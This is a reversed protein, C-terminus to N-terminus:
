GIGLRKAERPNVARLAKAAQERVAPVDDQLLRVLAPTAENARTGLMSLAHVMAGRVAPTPNRLAGTLVLTIHFAKERDIRELLLAASLGLEPNTGNLETELMPVSLRAKEPRGLDLLGEVAKLRTVPPYPRQSLEVLVPVADVIRARDIRALSDIAALCVEPFPDHMAELLAPVAEIYKPDIRGIALTAAYRVENHPDMLCEMLPSRAGKASSGIHGLALASEKRVEHHYDFLNEILAPVADRADPGIEQLAHAIRRRVEPDADKLAPLLAPLATKVSSGFQCLLLGAFRRVEVNGDRLLGAIEPISASGIRVLLEGILSALNPTATRLRAVLAPIAEGAESGIQYLAAFVPEWLESEDLRESLALALPKAAAGLRGAAHIAKTQQKRDKTKIASLLVPMAKGAQAPDIKVLAAAVDARSDMDGLLAILDPVADRGPPGIWGLARAYVEAHTRDRQLAQRLASVAETPPPLIAGLAEAALVAVDGNGVKLADILRPVARPGIRALAHRAGERIAKDRHKLAAILAAVADQASPGLDALAEVTAKNDLSDALLPVADSRTPDIQALALAASLKLPLPKDHLNQALAPVATRAVPGMQGLVEAAAQKLTAEGKGLAAALDPVAIPGLLVLLARVRVTEKPPKSLLAILAPVVKKAAPDMQWLAQGAMDAPGDRGSQLVELLALPVGEGGLRGLSWCAMAAVKEKDDKLAALLAPTAARAPPGIWGLAQAAQQRVVANDDKLAAILAPVIDAAPEGIRGLAEAAEERVGPVAKRRQLVEILAPVAAVARPGMQILVHAAGRCVSDDALGAILAPVADPGMRVLITEVGGSVSGDKLAAVLQPAAPAGIRVLVASARRYLHIGTSGRAELLIPVSDPGVRVLADAARDSVVYDPGGLDDIWQALTKGEYTPLPPPRSRNWAWYGLGLLVLLLLGRQAITRARSDNSPTSM